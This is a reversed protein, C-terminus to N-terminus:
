GDFRLGVELGVLAFAVLVVPQSAGVTLSSASLALAAAVLMPGLLPTFERAAAAYRLAVDLETDGPQRVASGILERVVTVDAPGAQEQELSGAVSAEALLPAPTAVQYEHVM